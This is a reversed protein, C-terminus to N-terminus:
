NTTVQTVAVGTVIENQMTYVLTQTVTFGKPAISPYEAAFEIHGHLDPKAAGFHTAVDAISAGVGPIGFDVATLTQPAVACNQPLKGIPNPEMAVRLVAHDRGGMEGSDFWFITPKGQTNPGAYCLWYTSDGADGEHQVTGGFNKQIDALTTKEFAISLPGAAIQNFLATSRTSTIRAISPISSNPYLSQADAVLAFASGITIVVMLFMIKRQM